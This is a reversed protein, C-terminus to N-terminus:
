NLFNMWSCHTARPRWGIVTGYGGFWGLMKQAGHAFMVIGFVIRVITLVPDDATSFLNALM